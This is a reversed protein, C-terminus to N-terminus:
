VGLQDLFYPLQKRWWPWDHDVDHGWLDLWHGVGKAHLLDSLRRTDDLCEHEWKGQGCALVIRSHRYLTLYHEDALNALYHIPSQMYVADDMYTGIYTSLQYVGSLAIVTDAADPHRLFFNVAHYAGASCGTLVMDRGHSMRSHHRIFPLVDFLVAADYDAHRRARDHPHKGKDTWSEWDRGDISFLRIRGEHIHRGVAEVMGWNEFDFFRGDQSPFVVVPRGEHGYVKLEFDQGLRPSHLKHYEVHM